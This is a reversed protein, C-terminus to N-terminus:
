RDAGGRACREHGPTVRLVDAHTPHEKGVTGAAEIRLMERNSLQQLAYAVSRQRCAFPVQAILRLVQRGVLPEVGEVTNRVAVVHIRRLTHLIGVVTYVQLSNRRLLDFRGKRCCLLSPLRLQLVHNWQHAVFRADFEREVLSRDCASESILADAENLLAHFFLLREKDVKRVWHRM